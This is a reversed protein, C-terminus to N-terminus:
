SMRRRLSVAEFLFELIEVHRRAEALDRGWTTLGHRRMLFGWRLPRERDALRKAVVGALAPIDQTNEFIDIKVATDHTEIGALGKLMEYGAIRVGGEPFEVDSLVTASVSHTHLVAGAGALAATVHLATEASPKPMGPEVPKGSEDVVTFDGPGLRGKDRGSATILIRLPDRGVVVSYNGSTGLCWGRAHFGAATEALARAEAPYIPHLDAATTAPTVSM